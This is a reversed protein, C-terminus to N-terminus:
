YRRSGSRVNCALRVDISDRYTRASDLLAACERRRGGVTMRAAVLIGAIVVVILVEILTVERLWKM